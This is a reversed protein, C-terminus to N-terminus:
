LVGVLQRRLFKRRVQKLTVHHVSFVSCLNAFVCKVARREVGGEKWWCLGKKSM